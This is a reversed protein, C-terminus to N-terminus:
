EVIINFKLRLVSEITQPSPSRFHLGTRLGLGNSLFFPKLDVEYPLININEGINIPLFDTRFSLFEKETNKPDFIYVTANEVFSWQVGKNLVSLIASAPEVRLVDKTTLGRTALFDEFKIEVHRNIFYHTKIPALGAGIDVPVDITFQGAINEKNGDCSVLGALLWFCFLLRWM